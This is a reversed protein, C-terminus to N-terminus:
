DEKEVGWGEVVLGLIDPLRRWIDRREDVDRAVVARTCSDCLRRKEALDRIAGEWSTFVDCASACDYHAADVMMRLLAPPCHALTSCDESDCGEPDFIRLVLKLAERVLAERGDMCIKLDAKELHEESGDERIYGDLVKSGQICCEYFATPLISPTGTLHALRIAAIAHIEECESFAIPLTDPDDEDRDDYTDFDNTYHAKLASLAQREVDEVHYKHALQLVACIQDFEVKPEEEDSYFRHYVAHQIHSRTSRAPHTSVYLRQTKPFLVRLFHRLEEPSDSLPVMPCGEYINQGTSSPISNFLEALVSSQAALLGRYVRFATDCAVLVINGDELWYEGDHLLGEKSDKQRPRKAPRSSDAAETM